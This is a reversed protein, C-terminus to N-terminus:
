QVWQNYWKGVMSALASLFAVYAAPAVSAHLGGVTLAVTIQASPLLTATSATWNMLIAGPSSLSPARGIHDFALAAPAM